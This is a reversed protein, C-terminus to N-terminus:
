KPSNPLQAWNTPASPAEHCSAVITVATETTDAFAMIRIKGAGAGAAWGLKKIIQVKPDARNTRQRESELSTNLQEM